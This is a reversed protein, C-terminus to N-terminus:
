IKKIRVKHNPNLRLMYSESSDFGNKFPTGHWLQIWIQDDKKEFALPVWSEAIIYQSSYFLKFSMAEQRLEIIM